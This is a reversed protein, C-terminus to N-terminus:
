REIREPALVYLITWIAYTATVMIGLRLILVTDFALDVGIMAITGSAASLFVRKHNVEM